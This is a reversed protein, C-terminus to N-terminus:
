KYILYGVWNKALYYFYIPAKSFTKLQGNKLFTLVYNFASIRHDKQSLTKGDSDAREGILMKLRDHFYINKIGRAICVHHEFRAGSGKIKNRAKISAVLAHFPLIMGSMNTSINEKLSKFFFEETSIREDKEIIKIIDLYNTSMCCHYSPFFISSSLENGNLMSILEDIKPPTIRDDHALMLIISDNTLFNQLLKEIFCGHDNANLNKKTQFVKYSNIFNNESKISLFKQYDLDSEGNFSIFVNKFPIKSNEISYIADMFLEGGNFIPMVVSIDFLKESM